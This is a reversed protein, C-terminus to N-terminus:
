MIKYEYGVIENSDDLLPILSDRWKLVEDDFGNGVRDLLRIVSPHFVTLNVKQM